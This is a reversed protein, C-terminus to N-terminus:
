SGLMVSLWFVIFTWSPPFTLIHPVLQTGILQDVEEKPLNPPIGLIQLDTMEEAYDDVGFNFSYLHQYAKPKMPWQPLQLSDRIKGGNTRGTSKM